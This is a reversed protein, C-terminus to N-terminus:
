RLEYLHRLLFGIERSFDRHFRRIFDRASIQRQVNRGAGLDIQDGGQASAVFARDAGGGATVTDAGDLAFIFNNGEGAHMMDDGLGGVLIDADEDGQLEDNGQEGFLMDTGANGRLTDSGIGGRVFDRGAGATVDDNGPGGYLIDRGDGATIVDDGAAGNIWDSGGNGTIRDAGDGGTIREAGAGGTLNDDDAGGDIEVRRGLAGNSEDVTVTDAGGRTHVRILRVDARDFLQAADGNAAVSIEDGSLSLVVADDVADDGVVRLVGNSGLAVTALLRRSELTEVLHAHPSM